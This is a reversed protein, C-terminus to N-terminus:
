AKAVPPRKLMEGYVRDLLGRITGKMEDVEGMQGALAEREKSVKVQLELAEAKVAYIDVKPERGGSRQIHMRLEGLCKSFVLFKHM